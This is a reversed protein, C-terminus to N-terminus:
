LGRVLEWEVGQGLRLGRSLSIPLRSPESRCEMSLTLGAFKWSISTPARDAREYCMERKMGKKGRRRRISPTILIRTRDV